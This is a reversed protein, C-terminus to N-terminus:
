IDDVYSGPACIEYKTVSIFRSCLCVQEGKSTTDKEENEKRLKYNQMYPHNQCGIMRQKFYYSYYYNIISRYILTEFFIIIRYSWLVNTKKMSTKFVFVLHIKGVSTAFRSIQPCLQYRIPKVYEFLGSSTCAHVNTLLSLM